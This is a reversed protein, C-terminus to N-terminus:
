NYQRINFNSYRVHNNYDDEPYVAKTVAMTDSRFNSYLAIIAGTAVPLSHNGLTDSIRVDLVPDWRHGAGEILYDELACAQNRVMMDEDVGEAEEEALEVTCTEPLRLTEL